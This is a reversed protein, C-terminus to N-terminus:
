LLIVCLYYSQGDFVSRTVAYHYNKFHLSFLFVGVLWLNIQLCAFSFLYPTSTYTNFGDLFHYVSFGLFYYVRLALSTPTIQLPTNYDEM